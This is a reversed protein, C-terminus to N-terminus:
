HLGTVPPLVGTDDLVDQVGASLDAPLPQTVGSEGQSDKVFGAGGVDLGALRDTDLALRHSDLAPGTRGAM